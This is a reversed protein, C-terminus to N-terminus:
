FRQGERLADIQHRSNLARIQSLVAPVEGPKPHTIYVNVAGDLHQLEQALTQPSL